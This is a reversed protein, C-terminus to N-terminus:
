DVRFGIVSVDDRRSERGQYDALVARLREGQQAMPLDRIALLAEKFRRKGFGRRNEGGVQDILGDSTMHFQRGPLLEIVHVAYTQDEPIGRYGVGKKTGRM